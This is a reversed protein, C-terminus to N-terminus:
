EGGNRERGAALTAGGERGQFVGGGEDVEEAGKDEEDEEGGRTCGAAGLGDALRACRKRWAPTDTVSGAAEDAMLLMALAMAATSVCSTSVM